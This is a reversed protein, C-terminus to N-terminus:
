KQEVTEIKVNQLNAIVKPLRCVETGPEAATLTGAATAWRATDHLSRGHVLCSAIAAVMSDGAGVTSKPVIPFPRARIIEKDSIFISGDGGMSVIVWKVGQDLLKQAAHIIDTDTELKMNFLQELEYINPKIAFPVAKLGSLLAEGDADLITKVNKSKAKHILDRYIDPSAGLPLSGGVVLVSAEDLLTDMQNLFQVVDNDAIEFGRENVETTMRNHNDVIKLNIRTEGEVPIFSHNIMLEDLHNLLQKGQYGGNFGTAIVNEGFRRLVKAVNIGKGGPDIRIEQVRNLGGVQLTELTITKDLAPNLTVTIVSENM